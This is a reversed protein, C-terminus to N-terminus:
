ATLDITEFFSENDSADQVPKSVRRVEDGEQDLIQDEDLYHVESREDQQVAIQVMEETDYTDEAACVENKKTKRDYVWLIALLVNRVILVGSFWPLAFLIDQRSHPIFECSGNESNGWVWEKGDPCTCFRREWNVTTEAPCIQCQWAGERSVSGQACDKCKTGDWFMGAQCSCYDSGVSSTTGIPCNACSDMQDSKYSGPQCPKCSGLHQEDWSWIMGTPCSCSYGNKSSASNSPCETCQLSGEQSVFNQACNECGEFSNWFRGAKCFCHYLGDSSVTGLSCRTCHPYRFNQTSWVWVKGEPCSCTTGNRLSTSGGPCEICDPAGKYSASDESCHECSTKRWSMGAACSCSSSDPLSTASGPCDTCSTQLGYAAQYTDAPCPMCTGANFYLGPRCSIGECSLFVDYDHKCGSIPRKHCSPWFQSACIMNLKVSYSQQLTSWKLGKSWSKSSNYGMEKCTAHAANHDFYLGCM